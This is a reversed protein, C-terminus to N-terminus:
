HFPQILSARLSSRPQTTRLIQQPTVMHGGWDPLMIAMPGSEQGQSKGRVNKKM